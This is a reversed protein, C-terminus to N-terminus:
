KIKIYDTALLECPEDISYELIDFHIYKGTGSRRLNTVTVIKTLEIGDDDDGNQREIVATIKTGDKLSAAIISSNSPKTSVYIPSALCYSM